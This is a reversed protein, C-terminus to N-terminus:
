ASRTSNQRDHQRNLEKLKRLNRHYEDILAYQATELEKLRKLNKDIEIKLDLNDEQLQLIEQATTM